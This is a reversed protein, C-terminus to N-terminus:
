FPESQEADIVGFKFSAFPVRGLATSNMVTEALQDASRAIVAVSSGAKALGLAIARGIGRGAGTVIAVQDDLHRM